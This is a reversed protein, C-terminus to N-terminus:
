MLDVCALAQKNRIILKGDAIIPPTWSQGGLPTIRGLERYGEATPEIMAVAGSTGSVALIVDDVAVCGGREFGRQRWMVEGTRPDLCVLNPNSPGFMYGKYFVSSNFHSQMNKNRWLLEPGEPTVAVVACGSKYNSTIYIHDGSVIPTAANVDYKTEWPVRWLLQGDSTRVGILAKGNFVVYQEVGQITSKVPTAYGPIDGGGGAWITEGTERDLAAVCAQPGGPVVIVRDGDILASMAYGWTPVRGGFRRRMDCGWIINGNQADICAVKGLFSITFLRGDEYVPTARSYGYNHKTLDEYSTQWVDEGTELDIARVVDESGHHDIIFVKGDAVSPGAYGDDHMEVQWLVEPPRAQWDKNIGTDPAIGNKDPGRWYPWDAAFATAAFGACAIIALLRTTRM